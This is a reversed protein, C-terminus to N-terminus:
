THKENEKEWWVYPKQILEVDCVLERFDKIKRAPNGAMVSYPPVDKTIVAGAYIQCHHGIKIGPAIVVNAGISVNSEVETKPTCKAYHPCPPHKDDTFTTGPGIFVNSHLIVREMFVGANIRVNDGVRCGNKIIAKPGIRCYNGFQNDFFVTSQDSVDFHHGAQVGTYVTCRSGIFSDDGIIVHNPPHFRDHIGIIVFPEVITNIGLTVDPYIIASDHISM